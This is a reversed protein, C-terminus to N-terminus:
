SVERWPRGLSLLFSVPLVARFCVSWFMFFNDLTQAEMRLLPLLITKELLNAFTCFLPYVETCTGEGQVCLPSRIMVM